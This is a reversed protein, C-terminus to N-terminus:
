KAIDEYYTAQMDAVHLLYALPYKKFANSVQNMGIPDKARADSFGMHWNIAMMEDPMLKLYKQLIMVSKEGHGAPFKERITYYPVKEWNGYENKVNRTSVAYYNVKCVDHFLAVLVASRKDVNCSISSFAESRIINLMCECVHISHECLGGEYNGHYKTSAPATFFDESKLWDFLNEVGDVKDLYKEIYEHFIEMNKVVNEPLGTKKTQTEMNDSVALYKYMIKECSGKTHICVNYAPCKGCNLEGDNSWFKVLKRFKLNNITIENM